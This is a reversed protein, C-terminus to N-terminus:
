RFDSCIQYTKQMRKITKASLTERVEKSSLVIVILAAVMQAVVIAIYKGHTSMFKVVKIFDTSKLLNAAKRKSDKPHKRIYDDVDLKVEGHKVKAKQKSFKKEDREIEKLLKSLDDKIGEMQKANMKRSYNSFYTYQDEQSKLKNKKKSM